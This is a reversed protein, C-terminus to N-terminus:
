FGQQKRVFYVTCFVIGVFVATGIVVKLIYVVVSGKSEPQDDAPTNQEQKTTDDDAPKSEDPSPTSETDTTEGSNVNESDQPQSVTTDADTPEGSTENAPVQEKDVDSSGDVYAAGTENHLVRAHLTYNSSLDFGDEDIFAEYTMSNESTYVQEVSYEGYPLRMSNSYFNVRYATITYMEGTEKNKLMASVSGRFGDPVEVKLEVFAGDPDDIFKESGPTNSEAGEADVPDAFANSTLSLLLVLVLLFASLLRLPKSNFTKCM